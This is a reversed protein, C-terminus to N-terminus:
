ELKLPVDRLFVTLDTTSPNAPVQHQMEAIYGRHYTTHNALHLAIEASCSGRRGLPQGDM